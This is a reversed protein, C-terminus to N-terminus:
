LQLKYESNIGKKLLVRIGETSNHYKIKELTARRTNYRINEKNRTILQSLHYLPVGLNFRRKFNIEISQKCKQM